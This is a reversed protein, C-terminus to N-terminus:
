SCRKRIAATGDRWAGYLQGAQRSNCYYEAFIAAMRQCDELQIRGMPVLFKMAMHASIKSERVQQQIAEPLLEALAWRRSVWSVSRDFRRALEELSYGFCQELEQLLWGQEPASEQESVRLSGDLLLADAEQMLWVVAELTDRGLQQIAAIRKYGDIV